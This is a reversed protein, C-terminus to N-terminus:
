IETVYVLSTEVEHGAKWSSSCQAMWGMAYAMVTGARELNALLDGDVYFINM